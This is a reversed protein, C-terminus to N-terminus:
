LFLPSCLNLGLEFLIVISKQPIPARNRGVKHGGSQGERQSGVCGASRVFTTLM